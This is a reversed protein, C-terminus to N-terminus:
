RYADAARQRFAAGNPSRRFMVVTDSDGDNAVAALQTVEEVSPVSGRWGAAGDGASHEHGDVGELDALVGDRSAAAAPAALNVGPQWKLCLRERAIGRLDVGGDTVIDYRGDNDIAAVKGGWEVEDQVAWVVHGVALDLRRFWKPQMTSM